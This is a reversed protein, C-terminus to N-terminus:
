HKHKEVAKLASEIRDLFKDNIRELVRVEAQLDIITADKQADEVSTLSVGVGGSGPIGTVIWCIDAKCEHSFLKLTYMDPMSTGNLYNQMTTTTIGIKKCLYSQVTKSKALVQRLREGVGKAYRIKREAHDNDAMCSEKQITICFINYWLEQMLVLYKTYKILNRNTVQNRWYLFRRHFFDVIMIKSGRETEGPQGNAAKRLTQSNRSWRNM